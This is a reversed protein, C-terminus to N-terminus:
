NRNLGNVRTGLVEKWHNERQIVAEPDLNSPLTELISLQFSQNAHDLGMEGLLERLGVNGGHGTAFYAGWRQWFGGHGYASGVYSKGSSRDLIHYIGSVTSLPISWDTRNALWIAKLEFFSMRFAYFGPFTAFDLPSSLVREVSMEDVFREFYFARGRMGPRSQFRVILRAEWEAYLPDHDIGYHDQHRETVRFVGGFLYTNPDDRMQILSFILPRTWDNKSGKWIHWGRWTERNQLYLDLPHDGSPSVKGLHLKFDQPHLGYLLSSLRIPNSVM